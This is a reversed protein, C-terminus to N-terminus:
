VSTGLRNGRGQREEKVMNPYRSVPKKDIERGQREEKVMNPTRSVSTRLLNGMGQKEEQTM